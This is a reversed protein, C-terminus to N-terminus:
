DRIELDMSDPLHTYCCPMHLVYIGHVTFTIKVVGYMMLHWIVTTLNPALRLALSNQGNRGYNTYLHMMVCLFPLLIFM